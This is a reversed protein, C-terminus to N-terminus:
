CLHHWINAITVEKLFGPALPNCDPYIERLVSFASDQLKKYEKMKEFKLNNNMNESERMILKLKNYLLFPATTLGKEINKQSVKTLTTQVSYM